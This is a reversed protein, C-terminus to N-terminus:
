GLGTTGKSSAPQQYHPGPPGAHAHPAYPMGLPAADDQNPASPVTEVPSVAASGAYWFPAYGGVRRSDNM